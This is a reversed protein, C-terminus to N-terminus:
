AKNQGYSQEKRQQHPNLFCEPCRAWGFHSRAALPPPPVAAVSSSSVVLDEERGASPFLARRLMFCTHQNLRLRLPSSCQASGMVLCNIRLYHLNKCGCHMGSREGRTYPRGPYLCGQYYFHDCAIFLVTPAVLVSAYARM